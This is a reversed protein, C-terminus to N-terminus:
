KGNDHSTGEEYLSQKGSQIEMIFDDVNEDDVHSELIDIVEAIEEKSMMPFSFKQLKETIKESFRYGIIRGGAYIAFPPIDKAVVSGAGIVAGTGIRVGSLIICGYGIWVGDEVIIPGKCISEPERKLIVRSFPFTSIRRYDHEGSLLFKTEGAISCYQGIELRENENEYSIVNLTGYTYNGVRVKHIPFVCGPQTTNHRNLKKWASQCEALRVKRLFIIILEKVYSWIKLYKLYDKVEVDM